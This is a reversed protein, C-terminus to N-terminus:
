CRLACAFDTFERTKLPMVGALLNRSHFPVYIGPLRVM